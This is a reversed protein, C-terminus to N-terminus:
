SVLIKIKAECVCICVCVCECVGEKKTSVKKRPTMMNLPWKFLVHCKKGLKSRRGDGHTM